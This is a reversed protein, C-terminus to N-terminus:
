NSSEYIVFRKTSTEVVEWTGTFGRPVVFEDGARVTVAQGSADTIVSVGELMRCYEEETYHIRWKGPKSRWVGVYYQQTPDTYHMWVTQKPNGTILKEPALYYDEPAAGDGGEAADPALLRVFRQQAPEQM